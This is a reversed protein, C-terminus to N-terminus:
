AVPPAWAHPAREPPAPPRGCAARGTLSMARTHVLADPLVELVATFGTAAWDAPLSRDRLGAELWAVHGTAVGPDGVIAASAVIHLIEDITSRIAERDADTQVLDPLARTATRVADVLLQDHERKLVGLEQGIGARALPARPPHPASDIATLVRDAGRTLDPAWQDAGLAWAWRGNQGFGQGGCVITMGGARLASISRWAGALNMSSSCTVAVVTPGDHVLYDVLDEAPLSPAVYTVHVGRLRLVATAMLAPITHWEDEGSVVATQGRSGLVPLDVGLAAARSLDHLVSETIATAVHERAISWRGQRWESGVVVQAQALVDNIILESSAGQHFLGLAVALAASREGRWLADLYRHLALAWESGDPERRGSADVTGVSRVDVALVPAVVPGSVPEPGPHGIPASHPDGDDPRGASGSRPTITFDSLVDTAALASAVPGGDAVLTLPRGMSRARHNAGILLALGNRDIATVLRVDLRVGELADVQDFLEARLGPVERWTVEGIWVLADGFKETTGPPGGAASAPAVSLPDPPRVDTM